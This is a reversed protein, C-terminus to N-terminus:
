FDINRNFETYRNNYKYDADYIYDLNDYIKVSLLEEDNNGINSSFSIKGTALLVLMIGLVLVMVALLIIVINKGKETKM